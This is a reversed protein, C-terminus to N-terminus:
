ARGNLSRTPQGSGEDANGEAEVGTRSDDAGSAYPNRFTGNCVVTLAYVNNRCSLHYTNGFDSVGDIEMGANEGSWNAACKEYIASGNSEGIAAILMNKYLLNMSDRDVGDVLAYPNYKATFAEEHYSMQAKNRTKWISSTFMEGLESHFRYTTELNNISRTAWMNGKAGKEILQDKAENFYADMFTKMESQYSLRSLSVAAILKKATEGAMNAATLETSPSSKSLSELKKKHEEKLQEATKEVRAGDDGLRFGDVKTNSMMYGDPDMFYVLGTEPDTFWGCPQISGNGNQYYWGVSDHKWEGAFATAAASLAFVTSLAFLACKKKM